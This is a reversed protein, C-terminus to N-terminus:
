RAVVSGTMNPHIECKFTYTGAALAPVQYVISKGGDIVDGGFVKSGDAALIVINHPASDPNDFSITLASNAAVDLEGTSFKIDKASISVASSGASVGPQGSPAVSPAVSPAATPASSGGCAAAALAVASLALTAVLRKV